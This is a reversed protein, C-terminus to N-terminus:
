ENAEEEGAMEKKIREFASQSTLTPDMKKYEFGDLGIDFGCVGHYPCYSCGSADGKKYPSVPINGKAIEEGTELVKKQVFEMLYDFDKQPITQSKKHLSGDKNKKMNCVLSEDVDGKYFADDIGEISDDEENICGKPKLEKLISMEVEPDSGAAVFPNDLHYYFMAGPRISKDPYESSFGNICAGMYYVLQIQLGYYMQLFDLDKNGSKYDIIKVYVSDDKEYTDIRDIKGDLHLHVDDSLEYTLASADSIDRLKVEFHKPEYNGQRVQRMIAWVTRKLTEEMRHLIYVERAKEYVETKEYTDFTDKIAQRLYVSVKEESVDKWSTHNEKMLLSFRNLAEHYMNGIDYTEFAHERREQLRLGYQLFYAYACNAYQELKSVSVSVDGGNLARASARSIPDNEFKFFVGSLITNLDKEHEAKMYTLLGYFTKTEEEELSGRTIFEHCLEIFRNKCQPYTSIWDLDGMTKNADVAFVGPFLEEIVSILYSKRAAALSADLRHYTVFIKESAKTLVQYLYYKQMFSRERETPALEYEADKLLMRENQTLIGAGSSTKPILSDVAGILFLVKINELRTRELDGLVVGDSLPPIVGIKAASFGARLLDSYEKASVVEEGLVDDIKLLLDEIIGIIQGYEQSRVEDKLEMYYASKEEMKEAISFREFLLRIAKSKELITSDSTFVNAGDGLKEMFDRRIEDIQLLEEESFEKPRVTFIHEYKKRGVIGSRYLYSDFLDMEEMSYGLLSTRMLHMISEYNFNKDMVELFSLLFEVAPQYSLELSVDTFVPIEYKSFIEPIYNKYISVDGCVIAIEGYRYGKELALNRIQNACFELEDRPTDLRYISIEDSADKEYGRREDRFINEELFGIASDKSFRSTESLSLVMPEEVETSTKQALMRLTSMYKKSMAFLEYDEYSFYPKDEPDMTISFIMKESIRMLKEVVDNQLPTFGTFGDFVFIGDKAVLSEEIVQALLELIQESTIHSDKIFDLFSEYMFSVEKTKMSFAPPMGSLDGMGSFEEPSIHYQTLESILSKMQDIYGPRKLKKGLLPFQDANKVAIRHLILNKGTDDLVSLNDYGLETFIRYALRHFSLVDINMITHDPHASVLARQTSMTFQEPVIYFYRKEPHELSAEIIKHYLYTSKGSGSNGVLFSVSM